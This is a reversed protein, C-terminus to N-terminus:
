SELHFIATGYQKSEDGDNDRFIAATFEYTVNIINPKSYIERSIM